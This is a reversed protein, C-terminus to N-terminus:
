QMLSQDLLFDLDLAEEISGSQISTWILTGAPKTADIAAYIDADTVKGRVYSPTAWEIAGVGYGGLHGNFGNVNPISSGAPRLPVCFAQHPLALSGWRGATSWGMTSAISLGGTDRPNAPEFFWCPRGTLDEVAKVVGRRTARERFIERIIDQRFGDDDQTERRRFRRGFFDHAILDLFGGEATLIRTQRRAFEMLAHAHAAVNAFGAMLGNVVPTDDSGFWQSPLTSKGRRLAEEETLETM